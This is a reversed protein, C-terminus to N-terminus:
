LCVLLSLLTMRYKVRTTLEGRSTVELSGEERNIVPTKEIKNSIIGKKKCRFSENCSM